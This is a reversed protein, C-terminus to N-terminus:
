ETAVRHDHSENQKKIESNQPSPLVSGFKFYFIQLIVYRLM